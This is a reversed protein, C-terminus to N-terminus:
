VYCLERLQAMKSNGMGKVTTGILYYRINQVKETTSNQHYIMKTRLYLFNLM